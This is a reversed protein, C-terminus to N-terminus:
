KALRSAVDARVASTRALVFVRGAKSDDLTVGGITLTRGAVSIRSSPVLDAKTDTVEFVETVELDAPVDVSVDLTQPTLSWHPPPKAGVQAQGCDADTVAAAVKTGIVPVVIADKSRISEVIASGSTKAAHSPDGERLLERVGRTVWSVYAIANWRAPARKAEAQSSQFWMLGKAGAAMVSFGQILIEQPDPQLVIDTGLVPMKRNWGGSLGQSYFWTPLPMQNDRANRLYDYAGDIPVNKLFTTIHPACAAIYFDAGQVDAVGAFSGVNKNTKSGIYTSLQPYAAWRATSEDVYRAAQSQGDKFVDGDVEDGLLFGSIRSTDTFFTEWGSISRLDDGVMVWYDGRKPALENVVQQTSGGCRAASAYLYYTDIGAKLHADLNTADGGPFPCEDGVPWTEVPFRARQVRGAAAANTGDETEAVVTWASGEDVATCRPVTIVVSTKAPISKDAICAVDGALADRGDVLLKSLKKTATGENRLHVITVDRTANTTVYTIRLDSTKGTVETDLADGGTTKVVIRTKGAADYKADNSHFAVWLPEGAKVTKPFVHAWQVKGVDTYLTSVSAGDFTVDTVTGGVKAVGAIQFRGGDTPVATPEDYKATPLYADKRYTFFTRADTALAACKDGKPACSATAPVLATSADPADAFTSDSSDTVSDPTIGDTGSDASASASDVFADPHPEGTTGGSACGSVLFACVVPLSPRM